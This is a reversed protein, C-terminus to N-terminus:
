WEGKPCCIKRDTANFVEGAEETAPKAGIIERDARSKDHRRPPLLPLAFECHSAQYACAM